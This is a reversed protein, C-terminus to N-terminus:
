ETSQRKYVYGRIRYYTFLLIDYIEEFQIPFSKNYFLRPLPVHYLDIYTNYPVFPNMDNNKGIWEEAYYRDCINM